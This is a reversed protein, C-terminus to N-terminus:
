ALGRAATFITQVNLCRLYVQNVIHKILVIKNLVGICRLLEDKLFGFSLFKFRIEFVILRRVKSVIGHNVATWGM